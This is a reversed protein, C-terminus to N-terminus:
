NEEVEWLTLYYDCCDRDLIEEVTEELLEPWLTHEALASRLNERSPPNVWLHIVEPDINRFILATVKM